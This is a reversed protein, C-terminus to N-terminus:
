LTKGTNNTAWQQISKAALGILAGLPVSVDTSVDSALTVLMAAGVSVLMPWATGWLRLAEYVGWQYAKSGTIQGM